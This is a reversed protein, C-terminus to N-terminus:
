ESEREREGCLYSLGISGFEEVRQMDLYNRQRGVRVWEVGKGRKLAGVV